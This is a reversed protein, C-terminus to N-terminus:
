PITLPVANREGPHGAVCHVPVNGLEDLLTVPYCDAVLNLIRFHSPADHFSFNDPHDSGSGHHIFQQERGRSGLIEKCNVTFPFATV